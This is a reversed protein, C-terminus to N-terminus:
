RGLPGWWCLGPGRRCLGLCLGVVPGATVLRGSGPTVRGVPGSSGALRDVASVSGCVAVVLVVVVLRDM